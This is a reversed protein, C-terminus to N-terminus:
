APRAVSRASADRGQADLMFTLEKIQADRKAAEVKLASLEGGFRRSAETLQQQLTQSRQEAARCRHELEVNATELEETAATSGGALAASVGSRECPRQALQAQLRAIKVDRDIVLRSIDAAEDQGGAGGKRRSLISACKDRLRLNETKLREVDVKARQAGQVELLSSGLIRELKAIVREQTKATERYTGLKRGEDQLKQLELNQEFHAQGLDDLSRQLCRGRAAARLTEELRRCLEAGRKKEERYKDLARQLKQALAASPLDEMGPPLPRSPAEEAEREEEELRASLRALEDRLLQVQRRLGVIEEGARKLAEARLGFEKALEVSLGHSIGSNNRRPALATADASSAALEVLTESAGMTTACSGRQLALAAAGAGPPWVRCEVELSTPAGPAEHLRLDLLFFRQPPGPTAGSKQLLSAADLNAVALLTGRLPKDADARNNALDIFLLSLAAGSGLKALFRLTYQGWQPTHSFRVAPTTFYRADRGVSGRFHSELFAAFDLNQDYFFTAVPIEPSGDTAQGASLEPCVAVLASGVAFPLPRSVPVGHVRMEVACVGEAHGACDLEQHGPERVMSLLLAPRPRAYSPAKSKDASARAQLHLPRFLPLATPRWRLDLLAATTAGGSLAGPRSPSSVVDLTLHVRVDDSMGAASLPLVMEQAFRAEASASTAGRVATDCGTILPVDTSACEHLVQGDPRVLRLTVRVTAHGSEPPAPLSAAAHVLVRLRPQFPTALWVPRDVPLDESPLPANPATAASTLTKSSAAFELSSLHKVQMTVTAQGVALKRGVAFQTTGTGLSREFTIKRVVRPGDDDSGAVDLETLPLEVDGLFKTTPAAAIAVPDAVQVYVSVQLTDAAPAEDCGLLFSSRAFVPRLSPLAVDTSQEEGRSRLKVVAFYAFAQAFACEGIAVDLFPKNIRKEELAEAVQQAESAATTATQAAAESARLQKELALRAEVAEALAKECEAIRQQAEKLQAAREDLEQQVKTSTASIDEEMTAQAERQIELEKHFSAKERELEERLQEELRKLEGDSKLRLAETLKQEDKAEDVARDLAARTEALERQLDQVRPTKPKPAM